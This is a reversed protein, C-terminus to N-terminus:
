IEPRRFNLREMQVDFRASGHYEGTNMAVPKGLSVERAIISPHMQTQEVDIARQQIGAAGGVQVSSLGTTIATDSFTRGFLRSSGVAASWSDTTDDVTVAAARGGSASASNFHWRLQKLHSAQTTTARDFAVVDLECDWGGKTRRGVPVNRRVFLGNFECWEAVLAELHNGAM